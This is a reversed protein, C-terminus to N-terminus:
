LHPGFFGGLFLSSSVSSSGMILCLLAVGDQEQGEEVQGLESFVCGPGGETEVASEPPAPGCGPM